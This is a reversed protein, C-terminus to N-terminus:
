LALKVLRQNGADYVVARGARVAITTPRRLSKLDDGARDAVGFVAVPASQPAARDFVLVRHRLSDSVWLRDADAAFHIEEGFHDAADPGWSRWRGAESWDNGQRSFRIVHGDAAALLTEADQMALATWRTVPEAVGLTAPGVDAKYKGEAGISFARARGGADVALLILQKDDRYVTAGCCDHALPKAKDILQRTAERDLPGYFFGLRGPM